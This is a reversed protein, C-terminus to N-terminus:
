WWGQILLVPTLLHALNHRSSGAKSSAGDQAPYPQFSGQRLGQGLPVQAPGISSPAEDRSPPEPIHNPVNKHGTVARYPITGDM